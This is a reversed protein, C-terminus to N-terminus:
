LTGTDRSAALIAIYGESDTREPHWITYFDIRPGGMPNDGLGLPLAYYGLQDLTKVQRIRRLEVAGEQSQSCGM